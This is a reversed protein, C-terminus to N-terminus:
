NFLRSRVRIRGLRALQMPDIDSSEIIAIWSLDRFLINGHRDMFIDFLGVQDVEPLVRVPMLSEARAISFVAPAIVTAVPVLLGAQLFFRRNM